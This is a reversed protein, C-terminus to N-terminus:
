VNRTLIIYSAGELTGADDPILASLRGSSIADQSREVTVRRDAGHAIGVVTVPMNIKTAGTNGVIQTMDSVELQDDPLVGEVYEALEARVDSETDGGIYTIATRVFTPFLARALPSQCIIRSQRDRIYDHVQEVLADKEYTIQLNTGVLEQKNTDDATTGAVLVRPSIDM